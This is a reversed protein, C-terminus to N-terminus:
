KAMSADKADAVAPPRDLIASGPAVPVQLYLLLM